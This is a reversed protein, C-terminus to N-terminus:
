CELILDWCLFSEFCRKNIIVSDVHHLNEPFDGEEPWLIVSLCCHFPKFCHFIIHSTFSHETSAPLIKLVKQCASFVVVFFDTVEGRMDNNM